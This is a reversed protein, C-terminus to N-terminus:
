KTLKSALLASGIAPEGAMEDVIQAKPLHEMLQKKVLDRFDPSGQLIGGAMVIPFQADTLHLRRAVTVVCERLGTAAKETIDKAM